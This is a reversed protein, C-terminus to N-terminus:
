HCRTLAGTNLFRQALCGISSARMIKTPLKVGARTIPKTSTRRSVARRDPRHPSFKRMGGQGPQPAGSGTTRRGVELCCISQPPQVQWDQPQSISLHPLRKAEVESFGQLGNPRLWNTRRSAPSVVCFSEMVDNIVSTNVWAMVGSLRFRSSAQSSDWRQNVPNQPLGQLLRRRERSGHFASPCVEEAGMRSISTM